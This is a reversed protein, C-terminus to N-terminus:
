EWPKMLYNKNEEAELCTTQCQAIDNIVILRIIEGFELIKQLNKFDITSTIIIIYVICIVFETVLFWM